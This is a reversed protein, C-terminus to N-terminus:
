ALGAKKNRITEQEAMFEDHRKQEDPPLKEGRNGKAIIEEITLREMGPLFGPGFEERGTEM